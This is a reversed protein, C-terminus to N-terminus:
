LHVGRPAYVLVRPGKPRTVRLQVTGDDAGVYPRAPPLDDDHFPTHRDRAHQPTPTPWPQAWPGLDVGLIPGPTTDHGNHQGTAPLLLDLARTLAHRITQRM